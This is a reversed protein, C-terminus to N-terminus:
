GWSQAFGLADSLVDMGETHATYGIKELANMFDFIAYYAKEATALVESYEPDQNTPIDM